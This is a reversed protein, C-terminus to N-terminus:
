TLNKPKSPRVLPKPNAGFAFYIGFVAAITIATIIFFISHYSGSADYMFGALPPGIAYGAYVIVLAFAFIASFEAEGFIDRTVIPLLTGSAGTGLGYIVVFFWIGSITGAHILIVMGIVALVFFLITVYRSVFRDALWGALLASIAGIGLTIGRLLAALTGSVNMDTILSVQQTIVANYGISLLAFSLCILWFAPSKLYPFRRNNVSAAGASEAPIRTVPKSNTSRNIDEPRDGDPLLGMSAPNDKLVFVILPVNIILTLLGAFLYTSRWGYNQAIIGVLPQIIISGIGGGTLAIGIATGWKRTFWRSLLTFLAIASNFGAAIGAILYLFYFLWLGNALSLLLLSVGTVVSGWLMFSKPSFRHLLRGVFIGTIGTAILTISQSLSVEGRGTHFQEMLRKLVVAFPAAAGTVFLVTIAIVMWWGYFVRNIKKM